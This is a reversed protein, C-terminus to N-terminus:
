RVQRVGDEVRVVRLAFYHAVHLHQFVFVDREDVGHNGKYTNMRGSITPPKTSIIVRLQVQMLLAGARHLQVARRLHHRATQLVERVNV